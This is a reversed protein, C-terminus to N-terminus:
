GRTTAWTAGWPYPVYVQSAADLTKMDEESLTFTTADLNEKLQSMKKAGIIPCTVGPKQMLWRLSVQSMSKGTKQSVSQVADLVRFTHENAMDDWNTAKWGAAQAWAVRSGSEPGGERKYRGSLWGGALPSWPLCGLGDELCVPMLDWETTRCLLSYQPQLCVFKELGLKECITMAKQIQYANFNSIGLYRVKGSRVLDNLTTMTEELPTSVDWSHVQYLDIHDTKLRELSDKVAAMIHKRSLGVSNASPGMRGRVKTAIVLDDRNKTAMWEGLVVESDGRGYVDATDFFNGGREYFENLMAFSEDKLAIPLGWNNKESTGITMCGFCIESVHLGSKGLRVIKMKDAM